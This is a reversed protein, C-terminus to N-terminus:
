VVWLSISIVPHESVDKCLIWVRSFSPYNVEQSPSDMNM